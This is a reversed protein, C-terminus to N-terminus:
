QVTITVARRNKAWAAEDSGVADPREKGYSITNIRSVAVGAAALYNKAASARRDGLALNYERTGREDCHGEITVRTNPYQALWKAQSDLTARSTGDLDSADTAFFVRDAAVKSLFDAQSGPAPGQPMPPPPTNQSQQTGMPAPPLEAPPKKECATLALASAALMLILPKTMNLEKKM